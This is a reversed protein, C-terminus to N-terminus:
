HNFDRLEADVQELADGHGLFLGDVKLLDLLIRLRHFHGYVVPLLEDDCRRVDSFRVGELALWLNVFERELARAVLEDVHEDLEEM